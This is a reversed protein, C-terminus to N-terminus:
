GDFAVLQGDGEVLGAFLADDVTEHLAHLTGELNLSPSIIPGIAAVSSKATAGVDAAAKSSLM